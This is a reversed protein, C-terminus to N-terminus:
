EKGKMRKLINNLMTYEKDTIGIPKSFMDKPVIVFPTTEPVVQEFMKAYKCMIDIGYEEIDVFFMLHADSPIVAFTLSSIHTCVSKRRNWSRKHNYKNKIM